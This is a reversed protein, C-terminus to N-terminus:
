MSTPGSFLFLPTKMWMLDGSVDVFEMEERVSFTNSTSTRGFAAKLDRRRLRAHSIEKAKTEGELTAIAYSGELRSWTEPGALNTPRRTILGGFASRVSPLAFNQKRLSRPMAVGADFLGFM